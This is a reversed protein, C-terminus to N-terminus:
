RVIEPGGDLNLCNERSRVCAMFDFRPDIKRQLGVPGRHRPLRTDGVIDFRFYGSKFREKDIFSFLKDGQAVLQVGDSGDVQGARQEGHEVRDQRM